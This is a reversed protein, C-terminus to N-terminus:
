ARGNRGCDTRGAEGATRDAFDVLDQNALRQYEPDVARREVEVRGCDLGDAHVHPGVGAVFLLQRKDLGTGVGAAEDGDDAGVGRRRRGM